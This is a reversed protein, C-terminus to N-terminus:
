LSALYLNNIDKIWGLQVPLEKSYNRVIVFCVGTGKIPVPKTQSIISSKIKMMIRNVGKYYMLIYAIMYSYYVDPTCLAM